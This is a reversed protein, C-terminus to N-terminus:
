RPYIWVRDFIIRGCITNCTVSNGSVQASNHKIGACNVWIDTVFEHQTPIDVRWTQNEM